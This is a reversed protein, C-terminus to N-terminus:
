DVLSLLYFRYSFGKRAEKERTIMAKKGSSFPHQPLSFFFLFIFLTIFDFPRFIAHIMCVVLLLICFFFHFFLFFFILFIFFAFTYDHVIKNFTRTHTLFSCKISSSSFYDENPHCKNQVFERSLHVNM